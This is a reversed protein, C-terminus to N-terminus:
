SGKQASDPQTNIHISPQKAPEGLSQWDSQFYQRDPCHHHDSPAVLRHWSLRFQIQAAKHWILRIQLHTGVIKVGM